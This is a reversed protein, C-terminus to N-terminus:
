RVQRKNRVSVGFSIFFATWNFAFEVAVEEMALIEVGTM